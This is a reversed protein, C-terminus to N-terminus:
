QERRKEETFFVFTTRALGVLMPLETSGGAEGTRPLRRKKKRRGKEPTNEPRKQRERGRTDSQAVTEATQRSEEEGNEGTPKEETTVPTVPVAPTIPKAAPKGGGKGGTGGGGGGGGNDPSYKYEYEAVLTIDDYVPANFDYPQGNLYWGIFKSETRLMRQNPDKGHEGEKVSQEPIRIWSGNSDFTITYYPKEFENTFVAGTVAQGAKEMSRNATLVNGQQTVVYTVTVPETDFTFGKRGLPLERIEYVYTGPLRFSIDGFEGTGAGQIELQMEQNGGAALPMPLVGGAEPATTSVARLLFTFTGANHPTGGTIIKQVPPDHLVAPTAPVWVAYLTVTAGDSTTVNTVPQGDTFDTTSSGPTRSWGGFTYGPRAYQNPSLPNTDGGGFHSDTM